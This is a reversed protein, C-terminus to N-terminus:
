VLEGQPDDDVVPPKDEAPPKGAAAETARQRKMKDKVEAMDKPTSQARRADVENAQAGHKSTPRSEMAETWSSEGDRMAEYLGRLNVLEAPVVKNLDHGLYDTLDDPGVGHESFADVLKKKAADPDKAVADRLTHKIVELAEEKIDAPILRLGENRIIKSEFAAEKNALEDDTASVLYVTQGNSNVRQSLAKQGKKLFRREVTKEVVKEKGFAVNTELDLCVVAIKRKDGDEFEVTTMIDVNGWNRVAAEAFRISLGEVTNGGGVPKSYLAAEAFRTRRCDNLIKDRSVMLKRPRQLAMICRAQVMAKAKEAAAVANTEKGTDMVQRGFETAALAQGPQERSEASDAGM